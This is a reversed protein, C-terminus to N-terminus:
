FAKETIQKVRTSSISKDLCKANPILRSIENFTLEEMYRHVIIKRELFTLKAAKM